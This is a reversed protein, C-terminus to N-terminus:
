LTYRYVNGDVSSLFLYGGQVEVQHLSSPSVFPGRCRFRSVLRGDNGFRTVAPGSDPHYPYILVYWGREDSATDMVVILDSPASSSKNPPAKARVRGVDQIAENMEPGLNAVASIKNTELDNILMQGGSRDVVVINNDSLTEVLAGPRAWSATTTSGGTPPNQQITGNACITAPGGSMAILSEAGFCGMPIERVIAGSLNYETLTGTAGGRKSLVTAVGARTAALGIARDGRPLSITHQVAGGVDTRVIAYRDPDSKSQILFWLVGGGAARMHRVQPQAWDARNLKVALSFHDTPSIASIQSFGAQTLLALLSLAGSM